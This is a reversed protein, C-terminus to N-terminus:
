IKFKFDMNRVLYQTNEIREFGNNIYFDILNEIEKKEKTANLENEKMEFPNALLVICGPRLKLIQKILRPLEKVLKTGIGRNRYKKEIFIKDIYLVDRDIGIYDSNPEEEEDFLYEYIGQKESDILDFLDFISWGTEEAMCVDIYTMEIKGIEEKINLEDDTKFITFFYIQNLLSEDSCSIDLEEDNINGFARGSGSGEILINKINM